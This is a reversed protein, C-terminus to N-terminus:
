ANNSMALPCGAAAERNRCPPGPRRSGLGPGPPRLDERAMWGSGPVAPGLLISGAPVRAPPGSPRAPVARPAPHSQPQPTPGPSRPPRGPPPGGPFLVGPPGAQSGPFLVGPPGAQSGPGARRARVVGAAGAATAPDWAYCAFAHHRRPGARGGPPDYLCTLPGDRAPRIPLDSARRALDALHRPRRGRGPHRASPWPGSAGHVARCAPCCSFCSASLGPRGPRPWQGCPRGAPWRAALVPCSGLDPRRGRRGSSRGLEVSDGPGHV